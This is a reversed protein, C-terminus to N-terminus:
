KKTRKKTLSNQPLHWIALALFVNAVTEPTTKSLRAIEKLNDIVIAPLLLEVKGTEEPAPVQAWVQKQKKPM